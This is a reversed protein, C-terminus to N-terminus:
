KGARIAAACEETGHYYHPTDYDPFGPRVEECVKACQERVDAEVTALRESLARYRRMVSERALHLHELKINKTTSALVVGVYYNLADEFDTTESLAPTM